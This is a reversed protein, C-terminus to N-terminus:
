SIDLDQLTYNIKSGTSVEPHHTLLHLATVGLIANYVSECSFTISPVSVSWFDRGAPEECFQMMQSTTTSYHHFLRLELSRSVPCQDRQAPFISIEPSPSNEM